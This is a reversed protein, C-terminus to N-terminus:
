RANRLAPTFVIASGAVLVAGTIAIFLTTQIGFAEIGAGGILWGLQHTIVVMFYLSMVRGRMAESATTQLLVPVSIMWASFSLGMVVMAIGSLFVNPALAFGAVSLNMVILAFIVLYGKRVRTGIAFLVFAGILSGVGNLGLMIGYGVESLGLVDRVKVPIAPQNMGIFVASMGVILLARIIPTRYAYAIGERIESIM